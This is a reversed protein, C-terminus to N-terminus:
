SAAMKLLKIARYDRVCGGVRRSTYFLVKPKATYPDRLLQTNRDAIIYGRQFNGFAVSYSNAAILPMNEDEYLPYGLLTEPQGAELGARWIYNGNGDKFSRIKELTSTSMLWSAGQRYAPKLAHVLTLLADSPNSTAFAGSAGSAVYQLKTHSRAADAESTTAYTTLGRPKVLGDGTIFAAGEAESFAETLENILWEQLNFSADDLLSQTVGPNAYVEGITPKILEWKPAATEPRSSTEGTWAYTTGGVSHLLSFDGSSVNVIRALQRMPSLERMIKSIESDIESPILYGGDPDSLGNMGAKREPERGSKMYGLFATKYESDVSNSPSFGPIRNSKKLIETIEAEISALRSTNSKKFSQWADGQASLARLVETEVSEQSM